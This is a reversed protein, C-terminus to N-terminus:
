PSWAIKILFDYKLDIVPNASIGIMSSISSMRRMLRAPCRITMRGSLTEVEARRHSFSPIQKVLM